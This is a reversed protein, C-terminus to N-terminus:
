KQSIKASIKLSCDVKLLYTILDYGDNLLNLLSYGVFIGLFGGINSWLSDLGYDKENRIEQYNQMQYVVKFSVENSNIRKKVLKQERRQPTVVIGMENCPNSLSSMM